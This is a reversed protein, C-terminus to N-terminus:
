LLILACMVISRPCLVMAMWTRTVPALLNSKQMLWRVNHEWWIGVNKGTELHWLLLWVILSLSGLQQRQKHNDTM